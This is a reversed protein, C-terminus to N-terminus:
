RTLSPPWLACSVMVNRSASLSSESQFIQAPYTAKRKSQFEGPKNGSVKENHPNRMGELIALWCDSVNVRAHCHVKTHGFICVRKGVELGRNELAKAIGGGRGLDMGYWDIKSASHHRDDDAEHRLAEVM